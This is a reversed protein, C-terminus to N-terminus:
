QFVMELWEVQMQSIGWARVKGGVLLFVAWFRSSSLARSTPCATFAMSSLSFFGGLFATKARSLLPKEPMCAARDLFNAAFPAQM